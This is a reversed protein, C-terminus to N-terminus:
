CPQYPISIDIECYEGEVSSINVYVDNQYFSKIRNVTGKFGFSRADEGNLLSSIKERSMGIGTDYVKIHIRENVSYVSIRIEGPEGKPRIGHYISNEVLPQLILKLIMMSCLKEDIEYFDEFMDDYRLRLLKIYNKVISIEDALTITESGKSLFKRYFIGLTEIADYVEERTNQLAMCGITDLTNYLFHPKMQEQIVIMEARQRQKEQEVVKELLRHIRLTMDNYCRQLTGIEDNSSGTTEIRVPMDGGYVQMTESLSTVPATIYKNIYRSLLLLMGIIILVIGLASTFMGSNNLGTFSIASSCIIYIGSEPIKRCTIIRDDDVVPKSKKKFLEPHVEYLRDLEGDDMNTCIVAKDSNVYAFENSNRGSKSDTVFNEYTKEFEHVPINIVLMGISKQTDIDNVVRVFSVTEIDTNISFADRNDPIVIYKGKEVLARGFWRDSFMVDLNPNMIGIDAKVYYPSTATNRYGSQAKQRQAIRVAAQPDIKKLVFVNYRGSFSNLIRFIESRAQADYDYKSGPNDIDGRLYNLVNDNFMILHSISNVNDMVASYSKTVSNIRDDNKEEYTRVLKSRNTYFFFVSCLIITIIIFVTFIYQVKSRISLNSFWGSKINIM